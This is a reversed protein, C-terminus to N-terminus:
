VLPENKLLLWQLYKIFFINNFIKFFECSLVKALTEKKTFNYAVAEPLPEPVAPTKM